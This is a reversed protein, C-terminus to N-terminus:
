LFIKHRSLYLFPFTFNQPELYPKFQWQFAQICRHRLPFCLSIKFILGDHLSFENDREIDSVDQLIMIFPNYADNNYM